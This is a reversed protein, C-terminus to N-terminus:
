QENLNLIKALDRAKDDLEEEHRAKMELWDCLETRWGGADGNCRLPQVWMLRRFVRKPLTRWSVIHPFLRRSYQFSKWRSDGYLRSEKYAEWCEKLEHFPSSYAAHAYQEWIHWYHRLRWWFHSSM